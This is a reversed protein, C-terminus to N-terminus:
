NTLWIARVPSFLFAYLIITHYGSPFLGSALVLCLHSLLSHLYKSQIWGAWSLIRYCTQEFIASTEM